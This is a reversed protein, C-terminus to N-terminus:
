LPKIKNDPDKSPNIPFNNKLFRVSSIKKNNLFNLVNKFIIKIKLNLSM